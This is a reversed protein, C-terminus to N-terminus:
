DLPHLNRTIFADGEARTLISQKIRYGCDTSSGLPQLWSRM